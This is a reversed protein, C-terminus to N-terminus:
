KFLMDTTPNLSVFQKIIHATVGWIPTQDIPYVYVRRTKGKWPKHYKAPLDLEKSPFIPLSKTSDDPCPRYPTSWSDIEYSLPPNNLFYSYPVIILKEVENQNIPLNHVDDVELFGVYVDIITSMPAIYTGWYDVNKIMDEKVGIEECTERIATDKTSFDIDHDFRGGPFCVEGAQSIHASREELILYYDNNQLIFTILIASHFYDNGNIYNIPLNNIYIVDKLHIIM